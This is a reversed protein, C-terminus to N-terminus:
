VTLYTRITVWYGEPYNPLSSFRWGFQAGYDNIMTLIGMHSEGSSTATAELQQLYLESPDHALLIRIFAQYIDVASKLAPNSVEFIIQNTYLYLTISVPLTLSADGYKVANELLENAIYSVSGKISDRRNIGQQTSDEGPFFTSFYDGLFDASLGYNRWRQTRLATSLSFNLTLFEHSPPVPDPFHGFIQPPPLVTM